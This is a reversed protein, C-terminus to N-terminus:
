KDGWIGCTGEGVSLFEGDSSYRYCTAKVSYPYMGKSKVPPELFVLGSWGFMDYEGLSFSSWPGLSDFWIESIPKNDAKKILNWKNTKDDKFRILPSEAIKDDLSKYM